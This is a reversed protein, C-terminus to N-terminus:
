AKDRQTCALLPNALILLIYLNIGTIKTKKIGYLQLDAM